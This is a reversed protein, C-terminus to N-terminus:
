RLHPEDRARVRVPPSRARAGLRLLPHALLHARTHRERPPSLGEIWSTGPEELRSRTRAASWWGPHCARPRCIRGSCSPHLEDAGLINDAGFCAQPTGRDLSETSPSPASWSLELRSFSRM